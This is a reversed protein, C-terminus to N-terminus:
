LGSFKVRAIQQMIEAFTTADRGRSTAGLGDLCNLLDAAHEPTVSGGYIVRVQEATAAGWQQRVWDRVVRCGAAAHEPSVPAAQGIAREPEYIFAMEAVQTAECGQLMGELRQAVAEPMAGTDDRSEGVLVVPKLGYEAALHMKRNIAADDDGLNRRVEWHGLMVWTCGADVLLPASLEGTRALDTTAAMNQAGVALPAGRVAEALPVLLTAPPCVVLEIQELLSGAYDQIAQAFALGQQVTMSMKWNVLALPKRSM